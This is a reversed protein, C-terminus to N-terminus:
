EEAVAPAPYIAALEALTLGYEHPMLPHLAAIEFNKTNGHLKDFVVVPTFPALGGRVRQWGFMRSDGTM